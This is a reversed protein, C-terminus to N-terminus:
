PLYGQLTTRCSTANLYPHPSGQVFNEYLETHIAWRGDVKRVSAYAYGRQLNKAAGAYGGAGDPELQVAVAALSPICPPRALVFRAGTGQPTITVNAAQLYSRAATEVTASTVPVTGAFSPPAAIPPAEDSSVSIRVHVGPDGSSDPQGSSGFAVITDHASPALHLTVVSGAALRLSNGSPNRYFEVLEAGFPYTSHWRDALAIGAGLPRDAEVRVTVHETANAHIAVASFSNAVTPSPTGPEYRFERSEGVNLTGLITDAAMRKAVRFPAHGSLALDLVPLAPEQLFQTGRKANFKTTLGSSSKFTISRSTNTWTGTETTTMIPGCSKVEYTGDNALRLSGFRICNTKPEFYSGVLGAKTMTVKPGTVLADDALSDEDPEGEAGSCASLSLLAVLPFMRMPTTRLDLTDSTNVASQGM